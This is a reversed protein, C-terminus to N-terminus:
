FSSVIFVAEIKLGSFRALIYACPTRLADCSVSVRYIASQTISLGIASDARHTFLRSSVDGPRNTEERGRTSEWNKWIFVSRTSSVTDGLVVRRTSCRPTVRSGGFVRAQESARAHAGTLASNIFSRAFPSRPRARGVRKIMIPVEPRTAGAMVVRGYLM